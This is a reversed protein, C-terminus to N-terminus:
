TCRHSANDVMENILLLLAEKQKQSCNKKLMDVAQDLQENISKKNVLKVKYNKEKKEYLLSSSTNKHESEILKITEEVTKLDMKSFRKIVHELYEETLSENKIEVLYHLVVNLVEPAIKYKFLLGQIIEIENRKKSSSGKIEKYFEVPSLEKFYIPSYDEYVSVM